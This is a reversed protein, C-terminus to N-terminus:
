AAPRFRWTVVGAVLSLLGGLALVFPYASRTFFVECTRSFRELAPLNSFTDGVVPILYTAATADRFARASTFPPAATHVSGLRGFHARHVSPADGARFLPTVLADRPPTAFYLGAPSRIESKLNSIESPAATPRRRQGPAVRWTWTTTAFRAELETPSPATTLPFVPATTLDFVGNTTETIQLGDLPSGLIATLQRDLRGLGSTAGGTRLFAAASANAPSDQLPTYDQFQLVLPAGSVPTLTLEHAIATILDARGDARTVLPGLLQATQDLADGRYAGPWLAAALLLVAALLFPFVLRAFGLM